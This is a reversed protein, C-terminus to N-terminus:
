IRVEGERISRRIDELSNELGVFGEDKLKEAFYTAAPTGPVVAEVKIEKSNIKAQLGPIVKLGQGRAIIIVAEQDPRLGDVMILMREGQNEAFDASFVITQIKQNSALTSGALSPPVIGHIEPVSDFPMISEVLDKTDTAGLMDTVESFEQHLAIEVAEAVESPVNWIKDKFPGSVEKALDKLSGQLKGPLTDSLIEVIIDHRSKGQQSEHSFAADWKAMFKKEYKPDKDMLGKMFQAMEEALEPMREAIVGLHIKQYETALHAEGVGAAPLKRFDERDKITSTGHQVFVHIGIEDGARQHREYVGFDIKGGVGHMTGTQLALKCPPVLGEKGCIELINRSLTISGRVSSPMKKDIHREEIGIAVTIKGDLLEQELGRIYRILDMTVETTTRHMEQYLGDLYAANEPSLEIEDVLRYRLAKVGPEDLGDLLEPNEALYADVFRDEFVLIRELAAPDILTSPDLDINYNGGLIAERIMSKVAGIEKERAEGGAFYKDKNVQYHDGIFFLLGEHGERIAAAIGMAVYEGPRQGTYRTESRALEFGFAGINNEKVVRMLIRAEQYVGTRINFTGATTNPWKGQEKAMYFDHNSGPKIGLLLGAERIIYQASLKVDKDGNLAAERALMDITEARLRDKDVIALKGDADFELVGRLNSILEKTDSALVTHGSALRDIGLTRDIERRLEAVDTIIGAQRSDFLSVLARREKPNVSTRDIGLKKLWSAARQEPANILGAMSYGTYDIKRREIFAYCKWEGDEQVAKVRLTRAETAADELIRTGKENFLGSDTIFTMAAELTGKAEGTVFIKKGDLVDQQLQPDQHFLGRIILKQQPTWKHRRAMNTSKQREKSKAGMKEDAFNVETSCINTYGIAGFGAQHLADAVGENWGTETSKGITWYVRVKGDEPELEAMAAHGPTGDKFHEWKVGIADLVSKKFEERGRNMVVVIVNKLERNRAKAIRTLSEKMYIKAEEFDDPINPDIPNNIFEEVVAQDVTFFVGHKYLLDSGYGRQKIIKGTAQLSIGGPTWISLQELTKGNNNTVTLTTGDVEDTILAEEGSAGIAHIVQGEKVMDGKIDLDSEGEAGMILANTGSVEIHDKLIQNARGDMLKGQKKAEAAAEGLSDITTPAAKGVWGEAKLGVAIALSLDTALGTEQVIASDEASEEGLSFPRNLLRVEVTHYKGISVIGLNSGLIRDVDNKKTTEATRSMRLDSVYPNAFAVQSISFVGILLTVSLKFLLKNLKMKEKEKKVRAAM